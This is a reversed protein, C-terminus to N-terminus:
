KKPKSRREIAARIPVSSDRLDSRIAEGAAQPDSARVASIVAMHNAHGLRSLADSRVVNLLPGYRMWLLEVLDILDRNGSARYLTFHFQQNKRLYGKINGAEDEASLEANIAELEEALEPGATRAGMEAAEGELLLRLPLLTDLREVTADPMCLSRRPPAVMARAAVLRNTAERIPMQSTGFAEALSPLTLKQGPEFEGMMCWQKLEDYVYDLDSSPRRSHLEPLGVTSIAM